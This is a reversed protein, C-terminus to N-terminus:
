VGWRCVAVSVNWVSGNPSLSFTVSGVNRVSSGGQRILLSGMEVNSVLLWLLWEGVAVLWTWGPSITPLERAFRLQHPSLSLVRLSLQGSVYRMLMRNARVFLPNMESGIREHSGGRKYIASALEKAYQCYFHCM